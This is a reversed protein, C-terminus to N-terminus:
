CTQCENQWPNLQIYLPNLSVKRVVYGRYRSQIRVAAKYLPSSQDLLGKSVLDDVPKDNGADEVAADNSEAQM